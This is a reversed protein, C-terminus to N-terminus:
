PKLQAYYSSTQVIAEEFRNKFRLHKSKIWKKLVDKQDAFLDLLANEGDVPVYRGGTRIFYYDYPLLKPDASENSISAKKERKVFVPFRNDTLQEYYSETKIGENEKSVTLHIFKHGALSFSDIKQKALIILSTKPYNSGILEDLVLNYQLPQDSYIVGQYSVWGNIPDNSDFYPFGITRAGNRIYEIGQYIAANEAIQSFYTNRIAAAPATLSSDAPTQATLRACYLCCSIIGM